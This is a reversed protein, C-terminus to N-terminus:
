KTNEKRTQFTAVDLRLAQTKLPGGTPKVSTGSHVATIADFDSSELASVILLTIQHSQDCWTHHPPGHPGPHPIHDHTWGHPHAHHGVPPNALPHVRSHSAGPISPCGTHSVLAHSAEGM